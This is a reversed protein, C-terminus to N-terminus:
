ASPKLGHLKFEDLNQAVRIAEEYAKAAAQSDPGAEELKQEGRKVVDERGSSMFEVGELVLESVKVYHPCARHLAADVRKLQRIDNADPPPPGIAILRDSCKGLDTMRNKLINLTTPNQSEIYIRIQPNNLTSLVELDRNMPRMLRNVIRGAWEDPTEANPLITPPPTSSEAKSGCGSGLAALSLLLAVFRM